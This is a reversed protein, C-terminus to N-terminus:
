NVRRCKIHNVDVRCPWFTILLLFETEPHKCKTVHSCWSTAQFLKKSKGALTKCQQVKPWAIFLIQLAHFIHQKFAMQWHAVRRFQTIPRALNAYVSVSVVKSGHTNTGLLDYSCFHQLATITPWCHVSVGWLLCSEIVALLNHTQKGSRCSMAINWYCFHSWKKSETHTHTHTQTM